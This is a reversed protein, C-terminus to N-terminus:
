EVEDGLIEAYEFKVYGIMSSHVVIVAGDAIIQILDKRDNPAGKIMDSLDSMHQKLKNDPIILSDAKFVQGTVLGLTDTIEILDKDRERIV